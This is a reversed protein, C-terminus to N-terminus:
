VDQSAIRHNTSALETDTTLHPSNDKWNDLYFPQEESIENTVLMMIRYM